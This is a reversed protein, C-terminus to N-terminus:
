RAKKWDNKFLAVLKILIILYSLAMFLHGMVYFSQYNDGFIFCITSFFLLSFAIILPFLKRNKRMRYDRIYLLSIFFLLVSSIIYTFDILRYAVFLFPLTLCLILAYVYQNSVRLKMYVLNSFGIIFFSLHVYIPILGIFNSNQLDITYVFKGVPELVFYTFVLWSWYSVSIFFFSLSFLGDDKEGSIRYIRYSYYSVLITVIAFLFQLVVSDLYFSGPVKYINM